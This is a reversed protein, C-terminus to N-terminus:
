AMMLRMLAGCTAIWQGRAGDVQVDGANSWGISGPFARPCKGPSSNHDGRSPFFDLVFRLSM